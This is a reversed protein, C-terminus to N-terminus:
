SKHIKVKTFGAGKDRLLEKRGISNGCGVLRSSKPLM